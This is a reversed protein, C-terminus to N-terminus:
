TKTDKARENFMKLVRDWSRSSFSGQVISTNIIDILELKSENPM